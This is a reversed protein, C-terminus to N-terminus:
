LRAIPGLSDTATGRVRGGAFALGTVSPPHNYVLLPESESTSRLTLADPNSLEDSAEVSM